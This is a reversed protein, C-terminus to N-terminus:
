SRRATRTRIVAMGLALLGFVAAYMSPEPVATFTLNDLGVLAGTTNDAYPGFFLPGTTSSSISDIIPSPLGVGSFTVVYRFGGDAVPESTRQITLQVPGSPAVNQKNDGDFSYAWLDGNKSLAMFHGDNGLSTDAAVFLGISTYVGNGADASLSLSISVSDGTASLKEGQNWLWTTNSFEETSPRLEGGAVAWGDAAGPPFVPAFVYKARNDTSFDDLIVQGFATTSLFVLLGCLASIRNGNSSFGPTINRFGRLAGKM